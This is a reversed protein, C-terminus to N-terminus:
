VSLWPPTNGGRLGGAAHPGELGRLGGGLDDPEPDAVDSLWERGGDDAREVGGHVLHGARLGEPAVARLGAVVEEGLQDGCAVVALPADRDAGVLDEDAIAALAVAGVDLLDESGVTDDGDHVGHIGHVDVAVDHGPPGAGEVLGSAVASRFLTTYPFLTSRPPRRIM